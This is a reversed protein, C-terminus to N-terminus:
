VISGVFGRYDLVCVGWIHRIKYTIKDASWMVGNSVNEQDAVFLEPDEMGRYFGVELLPCDRPSCALYWDTQPTWYDVQIRQLGFERFTNAQFDATGAENNSTELQQVAARRLGTPHILYAPSLGLVETANGYAAQRKMLNIAADLGAADLVTANLINAHAATFLATTDNDFTLASNQDLLDWVARYLTQAAARGLRQPIRRLAQVDDNAMMEMTLEELGGRKAIAYTSEQDTPSPLATYSQGEQVVPLLGYGGFRMRRQTRFDTITGIESVIARWTQLNPVAYEALMRRTISDGMIQAWSSTQLAEKFRGDFHVTRDAQTGYRMHSDYREGEVLRGCEKFATVPDWRKKTFAQYAESLHRFRKVPTGDSQKLDEGAWFGDFALCMKDFESESMRVKFPREQGPLYVDGQGSFPAIVDWTDNIAEVLEKEEFVRGEFRKQLKNIAQPHLGSEELKEKLVVRCEALRTRTEWKEEIRQIAEHVRVQRQDLFQQRAQIAEGRTEYNGLTEGECLVVFRGDRPRVEMVPQPINDDDPPSEIPPASEKLKSQAAEIATDLDGMDFVKGGFTKRLERKAEVPLGSDELAERLLMGAQQIALQGQMSQLVELVNPTEPM